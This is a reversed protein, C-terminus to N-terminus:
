RLVHSVMVAIKKLSPVTDKSTFVRIHGHRLHCFVRVSPHKVARPSWRDHTQFHVDGVDSLLIVASHLRIKAATHPVKITVFHLCAVDSLPATGYSVVCGGAEVDRLKIHGSVVSARGPSSVSVEGVKLLVKANQPVGVSVNGHLITGLIGCEVMGIVKSTQVRLNVSKVRVSFRIITRPPQPPAPTSSDRHSFLRSTPRRATTGRRSAATAPAPATAATTAAASAFQEHDTARHTTDSEAESSRGDAEELEGTVPQLEVPVESADYEANGSAAVEKGKRGANEEWVGEAEEESSSPSSEESSSTDSPESGNEPDAFAISEDSSSEEDFPEGAPMGRADPRGGGRFNSGERQLDSPKKPGVKYVQPFLFHLLSQKSFWAQKFVLLESLQAVDYSAQIAKVDAMASMTTVAQYERRDHERALTLDAGEIEFHFAAKRLDIPAAESTVSFSHYMTSRLRSMSVSFCQLRVEEGKSSSPQSSFFIDLSPLELRAEVRSPPKTLLRLQTGSMHLEVAFNIASRDMLLEGEFFNQHQNVALSPTLVDSELTSPDADLRHTTLTDVLFNLLMPRMPELEEPWTITVAARVNAIHKGGHTATNTYNMMAAFEPVALVTVDRPELDSVPRRPQSASGRPAAKAGEEAMAPDKTWLNYQQDQDARSAPESIANFL